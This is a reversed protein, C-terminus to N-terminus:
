LVLCAGMEVSETDEKLATPGGWAKHASHREKQFKTTGKISHCRLQTPIHSHPWAVMSPQISSLSDNRNTHKQKQVGDTRNGLAKSQSLLM